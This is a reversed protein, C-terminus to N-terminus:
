EIRIRKTHIRLRTRGTDSFKWGQENLQPLLEYVWMQGSVTEKILDSRQPLVQVGAITYDTADILFDRSQRTEYIGSDRQTEVTYETSGPIAPVDTTTNTGRVISVTIGAAVQLQEGLM